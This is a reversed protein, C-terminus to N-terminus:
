RVVTFTIRRSYPVENVGVEVTLFHEGEGLPNGHIRPGLTLVEGYDGSVMSGVIQTGRFIWRISNADYREPTSVSINASVPHPYTGVLSITPGAIFIDQAMDRFDAFGITFNERPANGVAVQKTRSEIGPKTIWVWVDGAMAVTVNLSWSTGGGTLAGRTAIGTHNAVMVHDATLGSVPTGFVFNIATTSIVDDATAVWTVPHVAVSRGRSEIGPRNISITVDGANVVTLALSWETGDGTLAGAKVSGTGAIVSIEAARLGAVPSSFAFNIRDTNLNDNAATTFTIDRRTHAGPVLGSTGVDFLTLQGGLFTFSATGVVTDNQYVTITNGSVSIGRGFYGAPTIIRGDITFEYMFPASAQNGMYWRGIFEVPISPEYCICPDAGCKECPQVVAACDGGCDPDGCDACAPAVPGIQVSTVYGRYDARTVTVTIHHGVDDAQLTYASSNTGVVVTGTETIRRWQFTMVGNGNLSTNATLQQGEQATGEITVTGTLAPPENDAPNTCAVVLLGITAILMTALKSFKLKNKM